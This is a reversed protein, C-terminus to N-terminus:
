AWGWQVGEKIDDEDDDQKDDKKPDTMRVGSTSTQQKTV